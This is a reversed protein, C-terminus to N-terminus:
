HFAAVYLKSGNSRILEAYGNLRNLMIWSMAAFIWARARLTSKEYDDQDFQFRCHQHRRHTGTERAPKPVLHFPSSKKTIKAAPIPEHLVGKEILTILYNSLSRRDRVAKAKAKALLDESCRFATYKSM